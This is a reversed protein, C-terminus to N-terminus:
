SYLKDMSEKDLVFLSVKVYNNELWEQDMMTVAALKSRGDVIDLDDFRFHLKEGEEEIEATPSVRLTASVSPVTLSETSEGYEIFNQKHIEAKALVDEDFEYGELMATIDKFEAFGSYRYNTEQDARLLTLQKM